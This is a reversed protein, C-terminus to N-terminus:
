QVAAGALPRGKLRADLAGALRRAALTLPREALRYVALCIAAAAAIEWLRRGLAGGTGVVATFILLHGLYLSYSADGLAVLPRWALGACDFQAAGWVALFGVTGWMAVRLPGMLPDEAVYAAGVWKPLVLWLGVAAALALAGLGKSRRGIRYALIGLLFEGAMPAGMWNLVPSRIVCSLAFAAGWGAILWRADLGRLRAWAALYFLLEFSLTWGVLVYSAAALPASAPVLTLTTFLRWGDLPGARAALAIWLAAWLWYAPFIRTLRDRLFTQPRTDAAHSIVFGSLVFFVDVGVAGAGTWGPAHVASTHEWAVALAAVARLVQLSNLRGFAAM